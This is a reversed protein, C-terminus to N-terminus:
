MGLYYSKTAFALLNDAALAIARDSQGLIKADYDTQSNGWGFIYEAFYSM